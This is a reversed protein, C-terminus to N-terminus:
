KVGCDKLFQEKDFRFQYGNGGNMNVEIMLNVAYNEFYNALYEVLEQRIQSPHIGDAEQEPAYSTTKKIIMAIEKYDKQNM